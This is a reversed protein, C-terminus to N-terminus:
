GEGDPPAEVGEDIKMEYRVNNLIIDIKRSPVKVKKSLIENGISIMM